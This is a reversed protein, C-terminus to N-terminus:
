KEQMLVLYPPGTGTDYEGCIALASTIMAAASDPNRASQAQMARLAGLGYHGGSGAAYLRGADMEIGYDPDIQFIVGNALVIAEISSEAPNSEYQPRGVGNQELVKKYAPVFSSIIFKNLAAGKLNAKLPPPTFSHQIINAGRIDGAVGIVYRGVKFAKPTTGRGMRGHEDSWRSDAGIVAWKDGQIALISTM